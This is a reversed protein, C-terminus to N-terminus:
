LALIILVFGIMAAIIILLLLFTTITLLLKRKNFVEENENNQKRIYNLKRITLIFGTLILALGGVFVTLAIALNSTCWIYCSLTALLLLLVVLTLILLAKVGFILSQIEEDPSVSAITPTNIFGDSLNWNSLRISGALFGKTGLAFAGFSTSVNFLNAFFLRGRYSKRGNIDIKSDDRNRNSFYYGGISFLVMGLSFFLMWPAVSFRFLHGLLMSIFLVVIIGFAILWRSKAVNKVSWRSIREARKNLFGIPVVLALLFYLMSFSSGRERSRLEGNEHQTEEKTSNAAHNWSTANQSNDNVAYSNVVEQSQKNLSDSEVHENEIHNDIGFSNFPENTSPIEAKSIENEKSIIAQNSDKGKDAKPKVSSHLHYGKRYHRKEMHFNHCGVFLLTLLGIILKTRM